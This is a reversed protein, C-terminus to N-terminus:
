SILLGIIRNPQSKAPAEDKRSAMSFSRGTSLDTVSVLGNPTTTMSQALAVSLYSYPGCDKSQAKQRIRINGKLAGRGDTGGRELDTAVDFQM